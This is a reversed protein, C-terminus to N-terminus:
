CRAVREKEPHPEHDHDDDGGGGTGDDDGEAFLAVRDMVLILDESFKLRRTKSENAMLM